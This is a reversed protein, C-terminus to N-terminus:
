SDKEAPESVVEDGTKKEVRESERLSQEADHVLQTYRKEMNQIKAELDKMKNTISECTVALNKEVGNLITGLQSQLAEVQGSKQRDPQGQNDQNVM